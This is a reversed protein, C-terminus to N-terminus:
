EEAVKQGSGRTYKCSRWTLRSAIIKMLEHGSGVSGNVAIIRDSKKVQPHGVEVPQMDEAHRRMDETTCRSM